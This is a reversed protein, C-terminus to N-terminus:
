LAPYSSHHSDNMRDPVKKIGYRYSRSFQHFFLNSSLTLNSM